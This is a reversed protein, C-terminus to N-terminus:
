FGALPSAISWERAFKAGIISMKLCSSGQNAGQQTDYVEFKGEIVHFRFYKITWEYKGFQDISQQKLSGETINNDPM